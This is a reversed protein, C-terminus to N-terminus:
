RAVESEEGQKVGQRHGVFYGTWGAMGLVLLGFLMEGDSGQFVSLDYFGFCFIWGIIIGLVKGNM